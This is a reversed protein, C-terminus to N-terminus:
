LVELEKGDPVPRRYGPAGVGHGSTRVRGPVAGRDFRRGDTRRHQESRRVADQANGQIRRADPTGLLKRWSATGVFHGRRDARRLQGDRGRHEPGLARVCAGTLTAIDIVHTAGAEGAAHLGDTLILRGEADTNDVMVTKGNRAKFIDGPRQANADPSNEATPVIGVVNINPKLKGIAKMAALVAAGGSMDGKMEWMKDPPKLSIGGTDFTVGKGVLALTKGSKGNGRYDLQIMYPKNRSGQGVAILGNYGEKALQGQDWVKIGLKSERAVKRAASVLYAPTAM